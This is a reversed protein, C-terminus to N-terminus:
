SIEYPQLSKMFKFFTLVMGQKAIHFEQSEVIAVKELFEDSQSWYAIDSIDEVLRFTKWTGYMWPTM